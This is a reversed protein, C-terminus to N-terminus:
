RGRHPVDHSEVYHVPVPHGGGNDHHDGGNDHRQGDDHHDDHHDGGDRHDDHNVVVVHDDHHYAPVQRYNDVSVVTVPRHWYREVEVRDPGRFYGFHRGNDYDMRNIIVSHDIFARNHDRGIYFPFLNIECLHDQPVFCWHEPAIGFDGAFGVNINSGWPLPAWGYYGDCNRWAVWAPGWNLDPIWFWGYNMDYNWRGYHFAAWGWAYDSAWTWGYQENYVWHGNTQYPQFGPAVSPIFVYGYNGYNVWQGYPALQDYFTQMTVQPAVQQVPQVPEPAPGPAQAYLSASSTITAVLVIATIYKKIPTQM